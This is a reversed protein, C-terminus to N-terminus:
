SLKELVLAPLLISRLVPAASANHISFQTPNLKPSKVVGRSECIRRQRGQAASAKRDIQVWGPQSGDPEFTWSQTVTSKSWILYQDM